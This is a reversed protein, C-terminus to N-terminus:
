SLTQLPSDPMGYGLSHGLGPKSGLLMQDLENMKCSRADYYRYSRAKPGSATPLGLGLFAGRPGVHLPDPLSAMSHFTFCKQTQVSIVEPYAPLGGPPPGSMWRAPCSLGPSPAAARRLPPSRVGRRGAQAETEGGLPPPPQLRRSLAELFHQLHLSPPPLPLSNGRFPPTGPIAGAGPGVRVLFVSTRAAFGFLGGPVADSCRACYWNPSPPLTRPEQGM